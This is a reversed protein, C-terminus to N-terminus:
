PQIAIIKVSVEACGADGCVGSFWVEGDGIMVGDANAFLTAYRQGAIAAEVGPTLLQDYREVFREPSPLAVRRGDVTVELPYAVMAAVRDEDGAAVAQQLASLFAEYPAHAGFLQDLRTSIDEDPWAAPPMALLAALAVVLRKGLNPM